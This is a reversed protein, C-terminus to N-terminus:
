ILKDWNFEEEHQRDYPGAAEHQVIRAHQPPYDYYIPEPQNKHCDQQTPMGYHQQQQSPVMGGHLESGVPNVVGFQNLMGTLVASLESSDSVGLSYAADPPPPPPPAEMHGRPPIMEEPPYHPPPQHMPHHPPPGLPVRPGCEGRWHGNMMSHGPADSSWQPHHHQPPMSPGWEPKPPPDMPM